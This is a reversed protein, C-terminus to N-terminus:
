SSNPFPPFFDRYEIIQTQVKIQSWSVCLFFLCHSSKTSSRLHGCFCHDPFVHISFQSQVYTKWKVSYNIVSHYFWTQQMFPVSYFCLSIISASTILIHMSSIRTLMFSKFHRFFISVICIYLFGKKM